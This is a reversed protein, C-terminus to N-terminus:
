RSFREGEQFGAIQRVVAALEEPTDVDKWRDRPPPEAVHLNLTNWVAMPSREGRAFAEHVRHLAAARVHVALPQLREGDHGIVGDIEGDDLAPSHLLGAVAGADVFPLDCALVVVGTLTSEFSEDLAECARLGSVVGALPGEGPWEDPVWALGLEDRLIAAVGGVAVVHSVGADRMARAATMVLPQGQVPLTAKDRGM